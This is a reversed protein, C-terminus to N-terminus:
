SYDHVSSRIRLDLHFQKAIGIRLIMVRSVLPIIAICRETLYSDTMTKPVYLSENTANTGDSVNLSFRAVM